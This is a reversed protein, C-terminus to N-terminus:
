GEARSQARGRNLSRRLLAAMGSMLLSLCLYVLAVTLWIELSMFTDSITKKGVFTLETVSIVSALSTNKVLTICESLLPPLANRVAQPLVVDRAAYAPPLGLSVAAEWQERPVSLIGARFIESMYAGEFLSLAIIASPEAALGFGPAIVFYIFLIQVLLPTNRILEVYAIALARAVPGGGLRMSTAALAIVLAACMSVAGIRLTMFFGRVLPGSWLSRTGDPAIGTFFVREVRYWQWFYGTSDAGQVILHLILSCFVVYLAFGMLNKPSFIRGAWPALGYKHTHKSSASM